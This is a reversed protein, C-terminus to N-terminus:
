SRRSNCTAQWVSGTGLALGARLAPTLVHNLFAVDLDCRAAALPAVIADTDCALQTDPVERWELVRKKVYFLQKM